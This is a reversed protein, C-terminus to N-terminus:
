NKPVQDKKEINKYDYTDFSMLGHSRRIQKCETSLIM